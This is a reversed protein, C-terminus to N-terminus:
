RGWTIAVVLLAVSLLDWRSCGSREVLARMRDRARGIASDFQPGTLGQSECLQLKDQEDLYFRVLLERDRTNPLARLVRRVLERLGAQRSQEAPDADVASALFPVYESSGGSNRAHRRHNRLNNMATRFVFGAVVEPKMDAAADFKNLTTVIADHLVDMALQRQGVRRILLGVLGPDHQHLAREVAIPDTRPGVNARLARAASAAIVRDAEQSLRNFPVSV